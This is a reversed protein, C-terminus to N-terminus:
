GCGRHDTTPALRARCDRPSTSTGPSCGRQACGKKRERWLNMDHFCQTVIKPEDSDDQQCKGHRSDRLKAFHSCSSRSWNLSGVNCGLQDRVRARDRWPTRTM